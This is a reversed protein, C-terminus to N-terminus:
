FCLLVVDFLSVRRRELGKRCDTTQTPQVCSCCNILSLASKRKKTKAAAAFTQLKAVLFSFVEGKGWGRGGGDKEAVFSRCHFHPFQVDTKSRDSSSDHIAISIIRPMNRALYQRQNKKIKKKIPSKFSGSVTCSPRCSPRSDRSAPCRAPRSMLGQGAM